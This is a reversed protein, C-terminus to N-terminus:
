AHHICCVITHALHAPHHFEERCFFYIWGLLSLLFYMEFTDWLESKDRGKGWHWIPTKATRRDRAEDPVKLHGLTPFKLADPQDYFFFSFFFCGADRHWLRLQCTPAWDPQLPLRAIPKFGSWTLRALGQWSVPPVFRSRHCINLFHYTLQIKEKKKEEWPTETNNSGWLLIPLAPAGSGKRQSLFSPHRDSSTWNLETAQCRHLSSLQSEPGRRRLNTSSLVRVQRQLQPSLHVPLVKNKKKQDKPIQWHWHSCNWKLAWQTEIDTKNQTTWQTTEQM